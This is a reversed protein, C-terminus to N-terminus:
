AREALFKQNTCQDPTQLTAGALECASGGPEFFFSFTVFLLANRSVRRCHAAPLSFSRFQRRCAAGAGRGKGYIAPWPLSSLLPVAVRRDGFRFSTGHLGCQLDETSGDAEDDDEGPQEDDLNAEV